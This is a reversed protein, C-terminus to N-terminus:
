GYVITILRTCPYSNVARVLFILWQLQLFPMWEFRQLICLMVFRVFVQYSLGNSPELPLWKVLVTTPGLVETVPRGVASLPKGVILLKDFWKILLERETNSTFANYKVSLWKFCVWGFWKLPIEDNAVFSCFLFLLWVIGCDSDLLCAAYGWWVLCDGLATTQLWKNDMDALVCLILICLYFRHQSLALLIKVLSALHYYRIILKLGIVPEM